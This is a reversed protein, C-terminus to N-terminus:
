GGVYQRIGDAARRYMADIAQLKAKVEEDSLKRSTGPRFEEAIEGAAESLAVLGLNGCVGKMAHAAEFIRTPDMSRGAELVADVVGGKPFKRIHKDILKEVRLVGIAQEYSGGIQQYLEKITM